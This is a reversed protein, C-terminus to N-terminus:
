PVLKGDRGAFDNGCNDNGSIQIQICFTPRLYIAFTCQEYPKKKLASLLYNGTKKGQKYRFTREHGRGDKCFMKNKAL